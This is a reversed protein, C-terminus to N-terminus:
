LCGLHQILGKIVTPEMLQLTARNDQLHWTTHEGAEVRLRALVLLGANPSAPLLFLCHGWLDVGGGRAPCHLPPAAELPLLIEFVVPVGGGGGEANRASPSLGSLAHCLGNFGQLTAHM